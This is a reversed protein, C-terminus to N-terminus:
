LELFTKLTDFYPDNIVINDFMEKANAYDNFGVNENFVIIMARAFKAKIAENCILGDYHNLYFAPIFFIKYKDIASYNVTFLVVAKINQLSANHKAKDAEAEALTNYDAM